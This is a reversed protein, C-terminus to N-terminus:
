GAPTSDVIAAEYPALTLPDAHIGSRDTVTSLLVTWTGGITVNRSAGSFNIFIITHEDGATRVFGLADAPTEDLFRISGTRLSPRSARLSLIRRYLNVISTGDGLQMEVNREDADDGFPLWPEVGPLTFGHGSGPAWPLPTRCGDRSMGPVRKGWPDRQREPPIATERLGIEDGYYMTPQGRLTLLLVAAARANQDGYRTTGEGM